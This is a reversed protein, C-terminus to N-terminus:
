CGDEDGGAPTYDKCEGHRTITGYLACKRWKVRTFPKEILRKCSDCISHCVPEVRGSLEQNDSYIIYACYGAGHNFEYVPDLSNLESMKSNFAEQFKKPDQEQVVVLQKSM